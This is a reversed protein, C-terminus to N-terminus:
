LVDVASVEQMHLPKLIDEYRGLTEQIASIAPNNEIEMLKHALSM